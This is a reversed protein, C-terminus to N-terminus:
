PLDDLRREEGSQVFEAPRSNGAAFDEPTAVPLRARLARRARSLRSMVTGMPIDLLEAIRAYSLGEVERLILCARYAPPLSELLRDALDRDENAGLRDVPEAGTARDAAHRRISFAGEHAHRRKRQKLKNFCHWVTLRYLWTFLSSRGDFRDAQQGARLFVEQTADEADAENGLLRRALRYVRQGHADFVAGFAM